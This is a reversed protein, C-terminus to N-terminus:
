KIADKKENVKLLLVGAAVAAIAVLSGVLIMAEISLGGRDEDRVAKLRALQARAQASILQWMPDNFM